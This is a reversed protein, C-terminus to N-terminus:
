SMGLIALLAVAAVGVAICAIVVAIAAGCDRSASEGTGAERAGAARRRARRVRAVLLVGVLALTGVAFLGALLLARRRRAADRAAAAAAGDLLLRDPVSLTHPLAGRFAGLPWGVTDPSSFDADSSIQAWTLHWGNVIGGTPPLPADGVAGGHGDPHLHAVGGRFRMQENILAYYARDRVVPSEIHLTNGDNGLWAQM